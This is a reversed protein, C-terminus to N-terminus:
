LPTSRESIFHSFNVKMIRHYKNIAKDYYSCFHTEFTVTINVMSRLNCFKLCKIWNSMQALSSSMGEFCQQSKVDVFIPHVPCVSLCLARPGSRRWCPSLFLHLSASADSDSVCLKRSKGTNNLSFM